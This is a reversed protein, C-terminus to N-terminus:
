SVKPKVESLETPLLDWPLHTKICRPSPTNEVQEVSNGLENKWSRQDNGFLATLRNRLIFVKEHCRRNM